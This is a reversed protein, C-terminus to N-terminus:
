SEPRGDTVRGRPTEFEIAVHGDKSLAIQIVRPKPLSKLAQPIELALPLPSRHEGWLREVYAVLEADGSALAQNKAAVLKGIMGMAEDARAMKLLYMLYSLLRSHMSPYAFPQAIVRDLLRGEFSRYCEDERGHRRLLDMMWATAPVSNPDEVSMQEVYDLQEMLTGTDRIYRRIRREKDAEAYDRWGPPVLNVTPEPLDVAEISIEGAPHSGRRDVLYRLTVTHKGEGRKFPPVPCYYSHWLEPGPFARYSRFQVYVNGWNDRLEAWYEGSV